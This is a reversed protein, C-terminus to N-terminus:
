FEIVALDPHRYSLGKEVLVKVDSGTMDCNQAEVCDSLVRRLNFALKDHDQTGGAM